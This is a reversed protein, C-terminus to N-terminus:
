IVFNYGYLYKELETKSSTVIKGIKDGIIEYIPSGDSYMQIVNLSDDAENVYLKINFNSIINDNGSALVNILKRLYSYAEVGKVNEPLETNWLVSNISETLDNGFIKEVLGSKKFNAAIKSIKSYTIEGTINRLNNDLNDVNKKIVDDYVARLEPKKFYEVPMNSLGQIRGKANSLIERPNLLMFGLDPEGIKSKLLDPSGNIANTADALIFNGDGLNISVWKHSGLNNKGEITIKSEDFGAMELAEKYLQSWGKCIINDGIKTNDLSINQNYITTKENIFNANKSVQMWKVSYNVRKNLEDYLKKAIMAPEKIGDISKLLEDKLSTTNIDSINKLTNEIDFAGNDLSKILEQINNENGLYVSFGRNRYDKVKSYLDKLCSIAEKNSIDDFLQFNRNLTDDGHESIWNLFDGTNIKYKGINLTNGLIAETSLLTQVNIGNNFLFKDQTISALSAIRILETDSFAHQYNNNNIMNNLEDFALLYEKRSADFFIKSSSADIFNGGENSFIKFLDDDDIINLLTNVEIMPATGGNLSKGLYKKTNDLLGNDFLNRLKKSDLSNILSNHIEAFKFKHNLLKMTNNDDLKNIISTLNILSTQDVIQETLKDDFNTLMKNLNNSELSSIVRNLAENDKLLNKYVKSLTKLEAAQSVENLINVNDCEKIITELGFASIKNIKSNFESITIENNKLSKLLKKANKVRSTDKFYKRLDFTESIASMASGTLAGTLVNNFGGLDDFNEQLRKLISDTDSYQIYNGDTDTYGDKYCTDILTRAFTESGGDVGDLAVHILSNVLKTKITPASKGFVNIGNIKAGVFFQFGEWLGNLAGSTLGGATSAGKGWADEVGKGVGAIGAVGATGGAIGGVGGTALTLGIIGVTYGIGSSVERVNDFFFANTKLWRGAASNEYLSDFWNAVHKKAVFAKTTNWMYETVSNWEKGTIDSYLYGGGDVVLTIISAAGTLITAGADVIAEGLEGIGEVLSITATAITASTIRLAKTVNNYATEIKPVFKDNFWGKADSFLKNSDAVLSKFGDAVAIGGSYLNDAASQADLVDDTFDMIEADEVPKGSIHNQYDSNNIPSVNSNNKQTYSQMLSSFNNKNNITDM